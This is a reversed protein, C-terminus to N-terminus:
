GCIKRLEAIMKSTSQSEWRSVRSVLRRRPRFASAVIGEIAETVQMDIRDTLDVSQDESAPIMQTMQSYGQRHLDPRSLNALWQDHSSGLANMVRFAKSRRGLQEQVRSLAEVQFLIYTFYDEECAQAQEPTWTEAAVVPLDYRLHALLGVTLHQFLSVQENGASTFVLQWAGPLVEEQFYAYLTSLYRNALKLNLQRIAEKETFRGWEAEADTQRLMHHYFVAYYGVAHDQQQSWTIVRDFQEYLAPLSNQEAQIFSQISSM